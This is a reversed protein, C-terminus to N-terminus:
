EYKRNRIYHNFSEEYVDYRTWELKKKALNVWQCVLFVVMPQAEKKITMVGINTTRVDARYRKCVVVKADMKEHGIITIIEM